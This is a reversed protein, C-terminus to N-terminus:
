RGASAAPVRPEPHASAGGDDNWHDASADDGFQGRATAMDIIPHGALPNGASIAARMIQDAQSASTTPPVVLVTLVEGTAMRLLVVHTDDRPFSGVKIFGRAVKIRRAAPLWDPPSFVARDIRGIDPPFHDVLDALEVQLNRTQPWWAGDLASPRGGAMRMRLPVREPAVSDQGPSVPLDTTSPAQINSRTM